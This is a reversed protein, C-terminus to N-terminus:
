STAMAPALSDPSLIYGLGSVTKILEPNAPNAELKQRLRAMWTWLYQVDDRYEPGWVETLLEPNLLLKGRQRALARLILWETRTLAVEEGGRTATREALNVHLDGVQIPPASRRRLVSRIRAALEDLSFPKVLYDDAGSDLGHVREHEAGLATLLIVPTDGQRRLEALVELGDVDPMTVDLVVIDPRIRAAQALGAAGGLATVIDFGLASLELKILKLLNAQDDVALVLPGHPM